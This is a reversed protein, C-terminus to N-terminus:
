CCILQNQNLAAIQTEKSIGSVKPMLYIESWVTLVTPKKQPVEVRSLDFDSTTWHLFFSSLYMKILIILADSVDFERQHGTSISIVYASWTVWVCLCALHTRVVETSDLEMSGKLDIKYISTYISRCTCIERRESRTNPQTKRTQPKHGTILQHLALGKDDHMYWHFIILVHVIPVM